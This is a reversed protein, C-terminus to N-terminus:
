MEQNSIHNLLKAHTKQGNPYGRRHLVKRVRKKKEPYNIKKSFQILEKYIISM